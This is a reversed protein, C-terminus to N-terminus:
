TACSKFFDEDVRGSFYPQNWGPPLWGTGRSSPADRTTAGGLLGGTPQGTIEATLDFHKVLYLVNRGALEAIAAVM